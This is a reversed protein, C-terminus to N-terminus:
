SPFRVMSEQESNLMLLAKERTLRRNGACMHAVRVILATAFLQQAGASWRDGSSNLADHEESNTFPADQWGLAVVETLAHKREVALRARRSTVVSYRLGTGVSDQSLDFSLMGETPTSALKTALGDPGRATAAQDGLAASSGSSNCCCLAESLHDFLLATPCSQTTLTINRCVIPRSSEFVTDQLM